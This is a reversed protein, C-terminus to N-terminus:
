LSSLAVFFFTSAVSSSIWFLILSSTSLFALITETSSRSTWFPSMATISKSPKTSPFVKSPPLASSYSSVIPEPENMGPKSSCIIPWLLPSSNSTFTLNGDSYVGSSASLSATKLILSWSILTLSSGSTSSSNACSAASQSVTSSRLFLRSSSILFCFSSSFSLSILVWSKSLSASFTTASIGSTM